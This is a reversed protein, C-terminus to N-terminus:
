SSWGVVALDFTARKREQERRRKAILEMGVRSGRAMGENHLGKASAARPTTGQDGKEEGQGPFTAGDNEM